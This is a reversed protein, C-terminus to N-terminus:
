LARERAIGSPAPVSLAAVPTALRHRAIVAAGLLLFAAAQHLTGLWTPVVLLLTAVGLGFQLAAIAAVLDFVTRMRGAALARRAQLWVAAVSIVAVVALLRHHFQVTAIDEFLALADPFYGEPVLRGDMLPFTNYTFGADLGAVFGGALMTLAIWATMATTARALRRLRPAIAFPGEGRALTLALWLMYVYILIAAGLHAALRYQSVDPVDVLGSSVMFWGIAGQLAGLVFALGISVFLPRDIHGRLAFWLFPVLFAVGILRGWLRHVYELWFISKFGEVDMDFNVAHFQPTQKYLDFVAQWEAASLPPLWGTVPRWDVMSLGSGTLRTLGGLVVAGFVMGVLAFLWIGVARRQAPSATRRHGPPHPMAPNQCM